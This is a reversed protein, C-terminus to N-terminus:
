GLELTLVDLVECPERVVQDLLVEPHRNLGRDEEAVPEHHAEGLQAPERLRGAM